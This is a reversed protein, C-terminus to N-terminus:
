SAAGKQEGRKLSRHFNYTVFFGFRFDENFRNNHIGEVNVEGTLGPVIVFGVGLLGSLATGSQNREKDYGTVDFTSRLWLDQYVRNQYSIKGGNVSGADSDIVYYQVRVIELGDGGPLWVLGSSAVHSNEVQTSEIHDYHQFSYDVFHSLTSTLTHSIGARWQTMASAAFVEFLADERTNLNSNPVTHEHDQPKYYTGEVNFKLRPTWFVDVGGTGEDFNWHDVDYAMSGYFRPVGPLETFVRSATSTVLHRLVHDERAQGFYGLSLQTSKWQAARVSGGWIAEEQSIINTSYTPEFYRPAGGFLTFSVPWGRDIRVKGADAVYVGTPGESLFQRGVTMDIGPIAAPVRLAGEYFDSAGQDIGFDQELRAFSDFRTGHRLGTLSLNSYLDVPVETRRTQDGDRVQGLLALNGSLEQARVSPVLLLAATYACLFGIRSRSRSM